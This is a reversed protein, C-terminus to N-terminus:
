RYLGREKIHGIVRAPVLHQISRGRRICDRIQTSSIDMPTVKFVHVNQRDGHVCCSEASLYKYGDSVRDQLFAEITRGDGDDVGGGSGPRSMVILPILQFLDQFSEWTDIELFADLGLVLSLRPTGPLDQKYHRVTDVTYSPGSRMLEVDSVEFGPCDSLALRTMELRDKAAVIDIPAKHPPLASPIFLMRDLAFRGKVEAAARLHGLHIPNFTGGFLGFSVM